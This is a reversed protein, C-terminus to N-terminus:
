VPFFVLKWELNGGIRQVLSEIEKQSTYAIINACNKSRAYRSLYQLSEQWIDQPHPNLTSLTYVLLNKTLSVEDTVFCTTAVAYVKTQDGPEYGMWLELRGVLLSEQIHLISDASDKVHPPLAANICEKIQPWYQM